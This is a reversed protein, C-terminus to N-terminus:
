RLAGAFHSVAPGDNPFIAGSGHRAASPIRVRFNDPIANGFDPVPANLANVLARGRAYRLTADENNHDVVEISRARTPVRRIFGREALADILASVYGKSTIGLLVAIDHYSPGYGYAAGFAKIADLCDRQRSTLCEM